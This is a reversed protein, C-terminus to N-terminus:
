MLTLGTPISWPGPSECNALCTTHTGSPCLLSRSRVSFTCVAGFSAALALVTCFVVCCAQGASLEGDKSRRAKTRKKSKDRAAAHRVILDSLQEKTNDSDLAKDIDAQAVGEAVARKSLESPKLASLEAKMTPTPAM